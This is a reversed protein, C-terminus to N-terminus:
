KVILKKTITALDSNINVFYLGKSIGSLSITQVGSTNSADHKSILRGNVDYIVVSQLNISSAKKLFFAENAPNPYLDIGSELVDEEVSLQGSYLTMLQYDCVSNTTSKAVIIDGAEKNTSSLTRTVQGPGIDFDMLDESDIVHDLLHAHGLEHLAVSEFDIDFFPLNPGYDWNEESTFLVDVEAVVWDASNCSDYYVITEGLYGEPLTASFGILNLNDIGSDTESTDEGLMWNIKTENRWTDLARLFAAAAATNASFSSNQSWTFGGNGNDGYHQALYAQGSNNNNLLAFSVILVDESTSLDGNADVVTIVGTGALSPVEVTIRTDTWTLVQTSLAYTTSVGGDSSNAFGVSGKVSGFGAGTITLVSETGASIEGPSYTISSPALVKASKAAKNALELADFKLVESFNSKTKSLIETYVSEVGEMKHFPNTVVNRNLDYKYFGQVGAYARFANAHDVADNTLTFVGVDNTDLNLSPSVKQAMTGVTGGKTVVQVTTAPQGKFVKYVEVTNVTYINTHDANWFSEKSIVKGEVVLSSSEIQQALPIEKLMVQANLSTLGLFGILASLLMKRTYNKIM